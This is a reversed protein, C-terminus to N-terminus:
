RRLDVAAGFNCAVQVGGDIEPGLGPGPSSGMRAYHSVCSRSAVLLRKTTAVKSGRLRYPPGSPGTCGADLEFLSGLSELTTKPNRVVLMVRMYTAEAVPFPVTQM